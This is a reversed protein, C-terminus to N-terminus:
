PRPGVPAVFRIEQHLPAGGPAGAVDLGFSLGPRADARDVTIVLPVRADGFAALEVDTQGLRVDAPVGARVALHFRATDGSKNSLHIELQNRIRAGDIVWPVGPQRVVTAEFPARAALAAVAGGVAILAAAAYVYLRPRLVRRPRGALQALSTYRILGPPRKIKAMVDDCVDICQACALCEMQLGRRIDIGTPCAWVCKKCDICDGTAGGAATGAGAPGGRAVLKGRPEGRRADYGVVISDEDHLLSQLRGYPCLVICLQERFWAYNFYLAGTIALSWTFAVPHQAPGERVMGALDRASLFLSLAVHAVLASVALYLAHKVATRAVRGATWSAGALKLRRGRPGDCLREIPRYLAELFVTQPCAWGCWVRGRWTTVFLLAFVAATAIFVLIWFDQANFTAGLLFFRRRAVDLHIAPHGGVPVVPAAVYIAILAAFVARRARIFWGRVDLTQIAVRRGDPRLASVELDARAGAPRAM